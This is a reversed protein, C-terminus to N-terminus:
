LVLPCDKNAFSSPNAVVIPRVNVAKVLRCLEVIPLMIRCLTVVQSSLGGISVDDAHESLYQQPPHDLRGIDQRPLM